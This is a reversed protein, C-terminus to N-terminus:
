KNFIPIPLLSVLGFGLTYGLFEGPSKRFAKNLTYKSLPINLTDRIVTYSSSYILPNLLRFFYLDTTVPKNAINANKDKM